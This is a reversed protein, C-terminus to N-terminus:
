VAGRLHDTLYARRADADRASSLYHVWAEREHWAPALEWVCLMAAHVGPHDLRFVGDDTLDHIYLTKWLENDNRWPCIILYACADARHLLVFGLGHGLDLAGAEAEARVLARAAQRMAPPVITEERHIEYWKLVGGPLTLNDGPSVVRQHHRYGATVPGVPELGSTTGGPAGAHQPAPMQISRSETPPSVIAHPAHDADLQAPRPPILM